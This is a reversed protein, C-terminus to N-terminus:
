CGIVLPTFLAHCSIGAAGINLPALTAPLLAGGAHGKGPAYGDHIDLSDVTMGNALAAGPPSVVRGDLWLQAGQGGYASAAINHIIASLATQRGGIAAGLTDLLCRRAQHQVADPLNNWTISHICDIVNM